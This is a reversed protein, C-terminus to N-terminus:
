SRRLADPNFDDAACSILAVRADALEAGPRGLRVPGRWLRGTAWMMLHRVGGLWLIGSAVVFVALAAIEVPSSVAFSPAVAVALAVVLVTWVFAIAGWFRAPTARLARLNLRAHAPKPHLM